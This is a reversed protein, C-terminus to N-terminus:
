LSVSPILNAWTSHLHPLTESSFSTAKHRGRVTLSLRSHRSRSYGLPSSHLPSDGLAENSLRSNRSTEKDFVSSPWVISPKGALSWRVNPGGHRQQRLRPWRQSENWRFSFYWSKNFLVWLHTATSSEPSHSSREPTCPESRATNRTRSINASRSFSKRLSPHWRFSSAWKGRRPMLQQVNM